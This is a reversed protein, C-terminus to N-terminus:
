CRKSLLNQRFRGQKGKSCTTLSKSDVLVLLREAERGNDILSDVSKKVSRRVIIDPAGLELLKKPRNSTSLEEIYTTLTLIYRIVM